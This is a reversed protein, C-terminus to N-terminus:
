PVSVEHTARRPTGERRRKRRKKLILSVRGQPTCKYWYLRRHAASCFRQQGHARPHPEFAEGCYPCLPPLAARAAADILARLARREPETM